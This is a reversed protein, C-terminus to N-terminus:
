SRQMAAAIPQQNLLEALHEADETSLAQQPIRAIEAVQGLALDFVSFGRIDPRVVFRESM